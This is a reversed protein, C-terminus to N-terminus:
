ALAETLAEVTVEGFVPHSLDIEQGAILGSSLRPLVYDDLTWGANDEGAILIGHSTEGIVAYNGPLYRGVTAVGNGSWGNASKTDILAYRTM